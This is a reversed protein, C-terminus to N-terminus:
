GSVMDSLATAAAATDLDAVVGDAAALRDAPFLANGVGLVRLGAAKAARIGAQSGEIAIAEVAPVGAQALAAEFPDPAPKSRAATGDCVMFAVKTAGSLGLQSLCTAVVAEPMETVVGLVAGAGHLQDILPAAGAKLILDGGRAASLLAADHAEALETLLKDNGQRTLPWGYREFYASLRARAGQTGAIRAYIAEDWRTPVELLEFATNFAALDAAATELLVGDMELFVAKLM